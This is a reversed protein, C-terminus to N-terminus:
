AERRLSVEMRPLMRGEISGSPVEGIVIFGLAQYFPVAAPDSDLCLRKMGLTKAREVVKSWLLRGVGQRQHDPDVFFAHVEGNEGQTVKLCVVGCIRDAEAAWYEGAAMRAATVTLEERCREMFADDYGNSRKSRMSLDTLIDAEDLRARRIEITM